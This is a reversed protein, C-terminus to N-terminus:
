WSQLEEPSHASQIACYSITNWLIAFNQLPSRHVIPSGHCLFGIFHFANLDLSERERCRMNCDMLTFPQEADAKPLYSKDIQWTKYQLTWGGHMYTHLHDSNQLVLVSSPFFYYIKRAHTSFAVRVLFTLPSTDGFQGPWGDAQPRQRSIHWSTESMLWNCPTVNLPM